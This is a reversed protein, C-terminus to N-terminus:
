QGRPRGRPRKGSRIAQVMRLVESAEGEGMLKMYTSFFNQLAKAADVDGEAAAKGLTEMSMPGYQQAIDFMERMVASSDKRKAV